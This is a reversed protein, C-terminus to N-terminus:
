MTASEQNLDAAILSDGGAILTNTMSANFDLRTVAVTLMTSFKSSQTRLVEQASDVRRASAKIEENENWTVAASKKVISVVRGTQPASSFVINGNTVITYNGAQVVKDVFVSAINALDTYTAFTKEQNGGWSVKTYTPVTGTSPLPLPIPTPPLDQSVTGTVAVIGNTIAPLATQSLSTGVSPDRGDTNFFVQLTDVVTTQSVTGISFTDTFPVGAQHAKIGNSTVIQNPVTGGTGAVVKYGIGLGDATADL